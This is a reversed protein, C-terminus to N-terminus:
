RREGPTAAQQTVRRRQRWGTPLTRDLVDDVTIAGLLRGADDTVGVALMNYSALREAVERESLEPTITPEQELCRGLETSPPERLLRQFHVVGLYTGTPPKYPPQVVFVQAAISVLWDPDRIEALAEAVTATPGLVIIEPTMLSGATGEDYSLLRRMVDADEDDMADLIRTRQEGPMEALLDALDDYEMEELVSILRELDLGEIMRLQESEPLEELLDALREDDMAAALQARSALPLARVAAAVDSPHMDRLRAAEAAMEGGDGSSFLQPLEDHDLLRYSPRRRLATRRALRVKSIEWWTQRGDGGPRLAVDSVTEDGVRADLIDRGLLIEGPRPKFPNLDVDWSRLRAGDADLSGVRGANVFIRRRQSTAVFGLVRPAGGDRGPIVVVDDLRGIANGGADLLPLRMVRFAYILDGAM